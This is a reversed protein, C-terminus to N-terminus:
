QTCPIFKEEYINVYNETKLYESVEQVMQPNGCLYFDTTDNNYENINQQLVEHIRSYHITFQINKYKQNLLINMEEQRSLCINIHINEFGKILELAFNDSITKIGFYIIIPESNALRLKQIMAIIPSLGTSTAIFVHQNNSNGSLAFKGLSGIANIKDNVKLKKIFQSGLGGSTTNVIIGVISQNPNIFRFSSEFLSSPFNESSFISYNRYIMPAVEFKLFQGPEFQMKTKSLFYLIFINESFQVKHVLQLAHKPM